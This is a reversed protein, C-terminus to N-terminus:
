FYLRMGLSTTSMTAIEYDAYSHYLSFTLSDGASIAIEARAVLDSGSIIERTREASSNLLWGDRGNLEWHSWGIWPILNVQDSIPIKVGMLLQSEDMRKVDLSGLLNINRSLNGNWETILPNSWDYGLRLGFGATEDSGFNTFDEQNNVHLESTNLEFGGYFQGNVPEASSVTNASLLLLALILTNRM